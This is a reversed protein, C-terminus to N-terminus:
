PRFTDTVFGRLRALIEPCAQSSALSSGQLLKHGELLARLQELDDAVYVGSTQRFQAVTALQHGNRHEGLRHDRPFIIIPKGFELATIISGMGAHSVMLSCEAQLTRFEDHRMFDFAHLARPKLRSPGIQAVVETEPQGVAWNDVASVLRDFPLQTGVSLLIM